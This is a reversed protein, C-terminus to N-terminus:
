AMIRPGVFVDLTTMWTGVCISLILVQQLSEVLLGELLYTVNSTRTATNALHKAVNRLFASGVVQPSPPPATHALATDHAKFSYKCM